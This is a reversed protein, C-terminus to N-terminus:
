EFSSSSLLSYTMIMRESHLHACSFTVQKAHVAHYFLTPPAFHLIQHEQKSHAESYTPCPITSCPDCLVLPTAYVDSIISFLRTGADGRPHTKSLQATSISLRPKQVYTEPIPPSTLLSPLPPQPNVTDSNSRCQMADAHLSIFVTKHGIHETSQFCSTVRFLASHTQVRCTISAMPGTEVFLWRKKADNMLCASGSYSATGDRGGGHVTPVRIPPTSESPQLM